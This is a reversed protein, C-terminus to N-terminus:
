LKLNVIDNDELRKQVETRIQNLFMDLEEDNEIKVNSKSAIFKVSLDVSKKEPKPIPPEPNKSKKFKSIKDLCKIKLNFAEDSVGRIVSIVTAKDLKKSLNDFDKTFSTEYKSILEDKYEYDENLIDNVEDLELKIDNQPTLKETSLIKDHEELFDDCLQPLDKIKSYPNPMDLIKRISEAISILADDTIFNKNSEFIEYTKVAEDFYTKQNNFFQIVNYTDEGMDLFDDEHKFVYDFFQDLSKISIADIILERSNELIQKGPYRANGRYYTLCDKIITLKKDAQTVFTEHIVEDNSSSEVTDFVDKLVLKVSKLKKESTEKKKEVLVKEKYDKGTLYKFIEEVKHTRLSIMESNLILSIRQQSFLKALLWVVDDDVFGYPASTFRQLITKLSPKVFNASQTKIYDDVDNLANNSKSVGPALTEQSQEKITSIIDNKDPAFDMYKLKHYVKSILDNLADDIRDKVNKEVINVKSGKVFIESQKLSKELLIVVSSSKDQLEEQKADRLSRKIETGHIRLYKEIQLIETIEKFVTFDKNLYLIVENKEDSLGKLANHIKEDENADTLTSQPSTQLNFDYYPSIIRIGVDNKHM